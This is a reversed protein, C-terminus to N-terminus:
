KYRFDEVIVMIACGTKLQWCKRDVRVLIKLFTWSPYVTTLLNATFGFFRM